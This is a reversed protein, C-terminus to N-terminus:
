QSVGRKSEILVVMEDYQLFYHSFSAELIRRNEPDALRYLKALCMVFSGGYTQMAELVKESSSRYSPQQQLAALRRRLDRNETALYYNDADTQDLVASPGSKPMTDLKLAAEAAEARRRQQDCELQLARRATIQRKLMM